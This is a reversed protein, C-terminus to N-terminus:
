CSDKNEQAFKEFEKMRCLSYNLEKLNKRVYLWYKDYVDQYEENLRSPLAGGSFHVIKVNSRIDDLCYAMLNNEIKNWKNKSSRERMWSMFNYTNPVFKVKGKLIKNFLCQERFRFQVKSDNYEEYINIGSIEGKLYRANFYIVGANFYHFPTELGLMLQRDVMPRGHSTVAVPENETLRLDILDKIRGVCLTDADIYLYNEQDCDIQMSCIFAIIEICYFYARISEDLDNAANLGDGLEFFFIEFDYRCAIIKLYERRCDKTLGIYVKSIKNHVAFSAISVEALEIFHANVALVLNMQESVM